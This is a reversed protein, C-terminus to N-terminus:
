CIYQIIYKSWLRSFETKLDSIIKDIEKNYDIMMYEYLPNKDRNGLESFFKMLEINKKMINDPVIDELIVNEDTDLLLLYTLRISLLNEYFSEIGDFISDYMQKRPFSDTDVGHSINFKYIFTKTFKDDFIKM